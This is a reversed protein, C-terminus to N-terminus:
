DDLNYKSRRRRITGSAVPQPRAAYLGRPSIPPLALPSQRLSASSASFHPVEAERTQQRAAESMQQLQTEASGKVSRQTEVLNRGAERASVSPTEMPPM